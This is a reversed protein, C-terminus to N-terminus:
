RRVGSRNRPSTAPKVKFAIDRVLPPIPCEVATKQSPVESSEVIQGQTTDWFEVRYAGQRLGVVSLTAGREARATSVDAKRFRNPLYLWGIVDRDNGYALAAINAGSAGPTVSVRIRADDAMDGTADNWPTLALKTPDRRDEGEMFRHVAAYRPYLSEEEVIMWWWFLPTGGIPLCTSSWLAAHHACHIHDYGQQALAQGGFETVLVPKGFANNYRGTEYLLRVIHLAEPSDHYADVAAFDLEPLRVIDPNQVRYDASVHSSVLHRYPDATRLWRGIDRHWAVVEPQEHSHHNVRESGTLNLESWLEWAFVHPSYGWRAIMYRMLNKFDRIARPDSFYEDPLTLYGGQARNFPNHSWEEDVYTSFKGHNHIVVNVYIGHREAADIVQDMEWANRLNYQGIGHYGPSIPSWELGLSWAATWVEVFNEGNRSMDKFYRLYATSGEPWRQRWPFQEDTRTDFPSRINHGIPFFSSGDDFEFYRRDRRAVRLYGRTRPPTAELLAPGWESRGVTDRVVLRYRYTGPARPAFRVKWVPLGQPEITEGTPGLTRYFNQVYFGDANVVTGGPGEFIAQVSVQDPNFPNPYRDPLSFTLEFREYCPVQAASPRVNLIQPPGDPRAAPRGSAQELRCNGKFPTPGFIRVAVAKPDCRARLQWPAHHGRSEWAPSAPRLDVSFHHRKGPILYGPLLTQYWRHEWDVFYVLVQTNTVADAPWALDFELTDAALWVGAPGIIFTDASGPLSVSVDMDAVAPANSPASAFRFRVERDTTDEAGAIRSAALVALTCLLAPRM